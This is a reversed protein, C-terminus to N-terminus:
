EFLTTTGAAMKMFSQASNQGSANRLVSLNLELMRAFDITPVDQKFNNSLFIGPLVLGLGQLDQPRVARLRALALAENVVDILDDLTWHDAAPDAPV